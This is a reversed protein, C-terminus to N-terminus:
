RSSSIVVGKPNTTYVEAEQGRPHLGTPDTQYPQGWPDIVQQPRVLPGGGNPQPRALQEISTPYSGNNVRYYEAQEALQVCDIWARRAKASEDHQWLWPLTVGALVAIIAGFVLVSRLCGGTPTTQARGCFPCGGGKTIVPNGCKACYRLAM